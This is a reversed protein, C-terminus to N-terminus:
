KKRREVMVVGDSQILVERHILDYGRWKESEVRAYVWGDDPVHAGTYRVHFIHHSKGVRERSGVTVTCQDTVCDGTDVEM